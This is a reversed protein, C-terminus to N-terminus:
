GAATDQPLSEAFKKFVDKTIEEDSPPVPYDGGDSEDSMLADFIDTICSSVCGEIFSEDTKSFPIEETEYRTNTKGNELTVCFVMEDTRLDYVRLNVAISRSTNFSTRIETSDESVSSSQSVEDFEVRGVVVYQILEELTHSLEELDLEDLIGTDAYSDFMVRYVEPGLADRIRRPSMIKIDPWQEQLSQALLPPLNRELAARDEESGVKTTFGAIGVDGSAANSYDFSADGHVHVVKAGGCGAVLAVASALFLAGAVCTSKHRLTGKISLGQEMGVELVTLNRHQM